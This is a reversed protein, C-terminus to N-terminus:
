AYQWGAHTLHVVAGAQQQRLSLALQLSVLLDLDEWGWGQLDSNMGAVELFHERALMVIGPASRSGDSFRVRNTEVSAERGGRVSLKISYVLEELESAADEYQVRSEFVREATM